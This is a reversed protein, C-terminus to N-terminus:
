RPCDVPAATTTSAPTTTTTAETPPVFVQVKNSVPSQNSVEDTAKMALVYKEGEKFVSSDIDFTKTLGGDVPDLDSDMLLDQTVLTNWMEQDFSTGTLNGATSSFKVIYEAVSDDSDLDNGPATFQVRVVNPLNTARLDTVQGPPTTDLSPDVDNTM